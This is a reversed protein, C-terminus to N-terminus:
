VYISNVNYSIKHVQCCPFDALNKTRAWSCKTEVELSMRESRDDM